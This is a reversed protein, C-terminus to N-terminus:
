AVSRRKLAAELKPVIERIESLRPNMTIAERYHRLAGDYDGREVCLHGLAARAAFHCPNLTVAREYAAQAKEPRELAHYAIGLQHHAETCTPEAQALPELLDLAEEFRGQDMLGIAAALQERVAGSNCRMWIRWLADEAADAVISNKHALLPILRGCHAETGVLGLGEVLCRSVEPGLPVTLMEALLGAPWDRCLREAASSLRGTRLLPEIENMYNAALQSRM